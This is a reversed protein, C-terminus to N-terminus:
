CSLGREMRKVKKAERRCAHRRDCSTLIAMVRTVETGIYAMVRTVETGIYAM